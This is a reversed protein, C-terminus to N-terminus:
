LSGCLGEDTQPKWEFDERSTWEKLLKCGVRVAIVPKNSIGPNLSQYEAYADPYNKAFTTRPLIRDFDTGLQQLKALNALVKKLYDGEGDPGKLEEIKTRPHLSALLSCCTSHLFLSLGHLHSWKQCVGSVERILPLLSEWVKIQSKPNRDYQTLAIFALMFCLVSEIGDVAAARKNSRNNDGDESKFEAQMKRKLRTAIGCHKDYEAKWAIAGHNGLGRDSGHDSSSPTPTALSRQPTSAHTTLRASKSEGKPTLVHRHLNSSPTTTNPSQPLAANPTRPATPIDPVHSTRRDRIDGDLTVMEEGTAYEQGTSQDALDRTTDHHKEQEADTDNSTKFDKRPTPRMQLIRQINKALSKNYRLRVVLQQLPSKEDKLASSDLSSAQNSSKLTDFFNSNGPTVKVAKRAIKPPELPTVTDKLRDEEKRENLSALSGKRIHERPTPRREDVSTGGLQGPPNGMPGRAQATITQTPKDYTNHNPSHLTPHVSTTQNSRSSFVPLSKSNTTVSIAKPISPLDGLRPPLRHTDSWPLDDPIWSPLSAKPLALKPSAVRSPSHNSAPNKEVKPLWDPTKNRKGEVDSRSNQGPRNAPRTRSSEIKSNRSQPHSSEISKKEHEAQAKDPTGIRHKKPPHPSTKSASSHHREAVEIAARDSSSPNLSICIVLLPLVCRKMGSHVNTEAAHQLGSRPLSSKELVDVEDRLKTAREGVSSSNLVTSTGSKSGLSLAGAAPVIDQSKDAAQESQLQGPRHDGHSDPVPTGEQGPNRTKNKYDNLSIKKKAAQVHLPTGAGSRTDGTGRLIAEKRPTVLEHSTKLEFLTITSDRWFFTQYQLYEERPEFLGHIRWNDRSESPLKYPKDSPTALLYPEEPLTSFRNPLPTDSSQRNAEEIDLKTETATTQAKVKAHSKLM